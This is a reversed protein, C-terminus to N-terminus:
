GIPYTLYFKLGLWEDRMFPTTSLILHSLDSNLIAFRPVLLVVFEQLQAWFSFNKVTSTCATWM